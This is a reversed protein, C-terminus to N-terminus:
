FLIIANKPSSILMINTEIQNNRVLFYVLKYVKLVGKIQKINLVTTIKIYDAIGKKNDYNLM